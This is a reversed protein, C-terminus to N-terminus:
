ILDKLEELTENTMLVDRPKSGKAESIMGKGEMLILLEQPETIVSVSIGKCVLLLFTVKNSQTNVPM